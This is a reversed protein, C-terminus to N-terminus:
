PLDMCLHSYICGVIINKGSQNIVELSTLELYKSKYIRKIYKRLRYIINEKIHFIIGGNAAKTTCQEINYNQLNINDIPNKSQKIRSERIGIIDFNLKTSSLRTDIM